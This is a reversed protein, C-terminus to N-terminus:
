RSSAPHTPPRRAMYISRASSYRHRFEYIPIEVIGDGERPSDELSDLLARAADGGVGGDGGGGDGRRLEARRSPLIPQSCETIQFRYERFLAGAVGETCRAARVFVVKTSCPPDDGDPSASM